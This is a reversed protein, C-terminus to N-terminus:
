LIDEKNLISYIWTLHSFIETTFFAPQKHCIDQGHAVVGVLENLSLNVLPAGSDGRCASQGLEPSVFVGTFDGSFFSEKFNQKPSDSELLHDNLDSAWFNSDFHPMIKLDGISYSVRPYLGDEKKGWGTLSLSDESTARQATLKIPSVNENFSLPASTEIIAIDHRKVKNVGWPTYEPHIHIHKSRKLYSGDNIRLSILGVTKDAVCHAATIIYRPSIIAGACTDIKVLWPHNSSQSPTGNTISFASFQLLFTSLIITFNRTNM